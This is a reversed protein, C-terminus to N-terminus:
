GAAVNMSPPHVALVERDEHGGFPEPGLVAIAEVSFERLAGLWDSLVTDLDVSDFNVPNVPPVPSTQVPASVIAADFRPARSRRRGPCGGVRGM